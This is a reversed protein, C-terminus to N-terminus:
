PCHQGLFVAELDALLHHLAGPQPAHGDYHVATNVLALLVPVVGHLYVAGRFVQFIRNIAVDQQLHHLLEKFAAGNGGPLRHFIASFARGWLLGAPTDGGAGHALGQLVGKRTQVKPRRLLFLLRLRHLLCNGHGADGRMYFRRGCCRGFSFADNCGLFEESFNDLVHYFFRFPGALLNNTPLPRRRRGFLSGVLHLRGPLGQFGPLLGHYVYLAGDTRSDEM